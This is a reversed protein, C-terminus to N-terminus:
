KLSKHTRFRQGTYQTQVLQCGALRPALPLRRRLHSSRQGYLRHWCRLHRRGVLTNAPQESFILADPPAPCRIPTPCSLPIKEGGACIAQSISTTSSVSFVYGKSAPSATAAPTPQKGTRFINGVTDGITDCLSPGPRCFKLSGPFLLQRDRPQANAINLYAIPWIIRHRTQYPAPFASTNALSPHAQMNDRVTINGTCTAANDLREIKFELTKSVTTSFILTVWLGNRKVQVRFAGEFCKHREGISTGSVLHAHLCQRPQCQPQKSLRPAGHQGFGDRWLLLHGNAM